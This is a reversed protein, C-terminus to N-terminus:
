FLPAEELCVTVGSLPGMRCAGVAREECGDADCTESLPLDGPEPSLGERPLKAASALVSAAGTDQTPSRSFLWDKDASLPNLEGM